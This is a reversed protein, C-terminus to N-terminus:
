EASTNKLKELIEDALTSFDDVEFITDSTEALFRYGNGNLAAIDDLDDSSLKRGEARSDEDEPPNANRQSQRSRARSDLDLRLDYPDVREGYDRVPPLPAEEYDDDYPHLQQRSEVTGYPSYREDNRHDVFHNSHQIDYGNQSQNLPSYSRHDQYQDYGAYYDNQRLHGNQQSRDHHPLRINSASAFNYDNQQDNRGNSSHNRDFRDDYVQADRPIDYRYPQRSTILPTSRENNRYGDIHNSYQTDYGHQDHQPPLRRLDEQYYYDDLQRSYENEQRRRDHEQYRARTSPDLNYDYQYNHPDNRSVRHHYDNAEAYPGSAEEYNDYRHPQRQQTEVNVLHPSREYNRYADHHNSHQIDHGNQNQHPPHRQEERDFGHLYEDVSPRNRQTQSPRERLPPSMDSDYQYNNQDNRAQNRDIREDYAQADPPIDYHPYRQQSRLPPSFRAEYREAREGNVQALPPEEYDDYPHPPQPTRVTGMSSRMEGNRYDDYLHQQEYGPPHSLPSASPRPLDEYTDYYVNREEDEVINNPYNNQYQHVREAEYNERYYGNRAEPEINEVEITEDVWRGQFNIYEAAGVNCSLDFDHDDDIDYEAKM